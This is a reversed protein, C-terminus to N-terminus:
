SKLELSFRNALTRRESACNALFSFRLGHNGLDTLLHQSFHDSRGSRSDIEKHVAKSFQSEYAISSGDCNM